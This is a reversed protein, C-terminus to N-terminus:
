GIVIRYSDLLNIRLSRESEGAHYKWQLVCKLCTLNPPLRVTIVVAGTVGSLVAFKTGSGDALPLVHQDLCAQVAPNALTDDACVRLQMWGRHNATVEITVDIVEGTGYHRSVVGAAYRGGMEHDRAGDYPDGCVGCLGGNTTWQRQVCCRAPTLSLFSIPPVLHTVVHFVPFSIPPVNNTVVHFVPFSIPPILNTVAHLLSFPIPPVVNTVAHLLPFPTPPVLNTVVHLLLFPIPPVFNTVVHLLLFPIPPVLNTVVHLVLFSITQLLTSRTAYNGVNSTRVNIFRSGSKVARLKLSRRSVTRHISRACACVRARM